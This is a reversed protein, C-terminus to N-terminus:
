RQLGLSLIHFLKGVADVVVVAAKVVVEDMDKTSPWLVSTVNM